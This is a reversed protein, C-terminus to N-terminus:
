PKLVVGKQYTRHCAEQRDGCHHIEGTVDIPIARYRLTPRLRRLNNLLIHYLVSNRATTRSERSVVDPIRISTYNPSGSVPRFRSLTFGEPRGNRANRRATPAECM